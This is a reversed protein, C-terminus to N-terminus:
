REQRRLLELELHIYGLAIIMAGGMVKMSPENYPAGAWGYVNCFWAFIGYGTIGAGFLILALAVPYFTIKKLDRPVFM